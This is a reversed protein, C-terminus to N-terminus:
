STAGERLALKAVLDRGILLQLASRLTPNKGLFARLPAAPFAVYRLPVLAEIAATTPRDTLFGMEGIFRGEDLTAVAHGNAKVAVRGTALVLMREPAAGQEILVAGAPADEWRGIALLRRFERPTLTRFVQAYLRQEEPDLRVPRREHIIRAIQVANIVNFVTTWALVATMLSPQTLAWVLSALGGLVTLTRLWLIDTVLYSILYIVNAINLWLSM